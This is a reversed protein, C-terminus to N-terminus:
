QFFQTIFRTAQPLFRIESGTAGGMSTTIRQALGVREMERLLAKPIEARFIQGGTRAAAALAEAGEGTAVSLGQGAIPAQTLNTVVLETPGGSTALGELTAVTTTGYLGAITGGGGSLGLTTIGGGSLTASAIAAPALNVAGVIYIGTM